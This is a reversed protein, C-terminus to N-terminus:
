NTGAETRLAKLREPITERLWQYGANEDPYRDLTELAQEYLSVARERDGSIMYAEALSDYCNASAPNLEVNLGFVALASESQGSQLLEYGIFNLGQEAVRPDNPNAARMARIEGILDDISGFEREVYNDWEYEIAISQVIQSCLAYGADSNTMVAAGRGGDASGVLLCAFGPNGGSHSFWVTGNKEEVFMGLGARGPPQPTVMLRAAEPSVIGGREGTLAKQIGIAFRALDAPTTWLGCCTSGQDLFWHGQMASGDRRHGASTNGALAPPLPKQFSSHDMGAPELILTRTLEYMPQGTVDELLLQLVTYGGGSYRYISGPVATVRISDSNAPPLGDLVQLINPRPEGEAYGRFGSVTLGATHSLIRRLTVKETPTFENEPIKWSRLMTNVDADLDFVGEDVYHLTAVAAVPKSISAAQFLTEETVPIGSVSDIVGYAKVWEIEYDDFVAIALGPVGYHEMREQLTWVPGGQIRVSPMLGNEVREIRSATGNGERAVHPQAAVDLRTRVPSLALSLVLFVQFGIMRKM